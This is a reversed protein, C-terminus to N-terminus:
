GPVSTSLEGDPEDDPEPAPALLFVISALAALSGAEFAMVQLQEAISEAQFGRAEEAITVMLYVHMGVNGLAAGALGCVLFFSLGGVSGAALNPLWQACAWSGALAAGIFILVPILM